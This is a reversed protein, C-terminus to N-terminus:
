PCVTGPLQVIRCDENTVGDRTYRVCFTTVTTTTTTNRSYLLKVLYNGEPNITNGAGVAAPSLTADGDADAVGGFNDITGDPYEASELNNTPSGPTWQVRIRGIRLSDNCLNKITVNVHRRSGGPSTVTVISADIINGLADKYPLLCCAAPAEQVWRSITQSCSNEDTFTMQIEFTGNSGTMGFSWAAVRPDGTMGSGLPTSTGSAVDIAVATAAVLNTDSNVTVAATDSGILWPDVASMGSGDVLPGGPTINFVACPFRVPPSSFGSEFGPCASVAKVAYSYYSNAPPVPPADTYTVIADALNSDTAPLDTSTGGVAVGGTFLVRRVTYNTIFIPNPTPAATDQTVPNWELIINCNPPTSCTSGVNTRLNTPTAPNASATSQGAGEVSADAIALMVDAPNNLAVNDKCVEQAVVKYFYPVCSEKATNDTWTTIGSGTDVSPAGPSTTTGSWIRTSATPTFAASTGRHIEWAQIEKQSVENINRYELVTSGPACVWKPITGGFDVNTQPNLWRLNVVNPVAPPSTGGGGSGVVNTAPAPRSRNIPQVPDSVNISPTTGFANKALVKFYYTQNPDLNEVYGFLKSGADTTPSNFSGTASTDYVVTYSEVYGTPPADWTVRAIGCAGACASTVKPAGPPSTVLEQVGRKGLNRPVITSQLRYQRYRSAADVRQDTPLNWEIPDRYSPDPSSGMGVMDIRIARVTERVSRAAHSAATTGTGSVLFQGAGGNPTVPLILQSDQFYALNMARVNTAIPVPTGVTGDDNLTVRYLTYPPQQCGSPLGSGGVDDCLDVNRIIVETEDLGSTEPYTRRPRRVDAFFRIEDTNAGTDSRLFYTVIEDNATTVVPFFDDDITATGFGPEFDTERGNDCPTGPTGSPDCPTSGASEYNLNTRITLAHEHMFEIQEDPQQYKKAGIPYGDRDFDYGAMRVEAVLRDFAVRTTQQVEASEVSTKFIRNARDYVLLAAIFITVFVAVAVLVETLSFGRQNVHQRQRHSTM